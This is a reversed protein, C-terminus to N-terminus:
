VIKQKRKHYREREKRNYEEREEPTHADRIAQKYQRDELLAYRGDWINLAKPDSQTYGFEINRHHELDGTEEGLWEHIWGDCGYKNFIEQIHKNGHKGKKVACLHENYRKNGGQTTRGYYISGEPFTIKYHRETTIDSM